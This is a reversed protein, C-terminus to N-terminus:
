LVVLVLYFLEISKRPRILTGYAGFIIEQHSDIFVASSRWCPKKPSSDTLLVISNKSFYIARHPNGCFDARVGLIGIRLVNLWLYKISCLCQGISFEIKVGYHWSSCNYSMLRFTFPICSAYIPHNPSALGFNKQFVIM